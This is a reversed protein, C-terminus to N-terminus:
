CTNLLPGSKMEEFPQHVNVNKRKMEKKKIQSQNRTRSTHAHTNKHNKYKTSNKESKYWQDNGLNPKIDGLHWTTFFIM